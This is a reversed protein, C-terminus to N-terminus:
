VTFFLVFIYSMSVLARQIINESQATYIEDPLIHLHYLRKDLARYFRVAKNYRIEPETSGRLTVGRSKKDGVDGM